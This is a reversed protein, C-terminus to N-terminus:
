LTETHVDGLPRARKVWPEGLFLLATVRWKGLLVTVAISLTIALLVNVPLFWAPMDHWFEVFSFHVLYIGLSLQGPYALAEEIVSPLSYSAAVIAVVACIGSLPVYETFRQFAVGVPGTAVTWPLRPAAFSRPTSYLWLPLYVLGCALGTWKLKPRIAPEFRRFLVGFAVYEYMWALRDFNGYPIVWEALSQRGALVAGIGELHLHMGIWYVIPISLVIVWTRDKALRALGLFMLALWLVYLYWMRGEYYPSRFVQLYYDVIKYPHAVFQPYMWRVYFFEWCVYPVLLGVTRKTFYQKPRFGGPRGLVYGSLFAFLPLMFSFLLSRTWLAWPEYVTGAATVTFYQGLAHFTVVCLIAYGKLADLRAERSHPAPHDRHILEHSQPM